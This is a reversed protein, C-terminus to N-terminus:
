IDSSWVEGNQGAGWCSVFSPELFSSRYDLLRDKLLETDQSIQTDKSLETDKSLQKNKTKDASTTNNITKQQEM